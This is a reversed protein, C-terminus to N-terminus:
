LNMRMTRGARPAAVTYRGDWPSVETTKSDDGGDKLVSLRDENISSTSFSENLSEADGNSQRDDCISNEYQNEITSPYPNDQEEESEHYMIRRQVDRINEKIRDRERMRESHDLCEQILRRASTRAPKRGSIMVQVFEGKRSGQREVDIKAGSEVQMQAVRSGQRGIVNGIAHEAM